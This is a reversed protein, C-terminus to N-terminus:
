WKYEAGIGIFYEPLVPTSVVPQDISAVLGVHVTKISFIGQRAQLRVTPAGNKVGAYMGIAGRDDWALWPLPDTRVYTQSEGTATDIVTTVTRPHDDAAAIKSSAIVQQTESQVVEAPLDIEKKLSTGGQYVKVPAKITVGVKPARKVEDAPTAIVTKGVEPAAKWTYTLWALGLCVVLVLVGVLWRIM